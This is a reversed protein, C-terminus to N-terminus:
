WHCTKQAPSGADRATMCAGAHKETPNQAAARMRPTEPLEEAELEQPFSCPSLQGGADKQLSTAFPNQQRPPSRALKHSPTFIASEEPTSSRQAKRVAPIVLSNVALVGSGPPSEPQQHPSLALDPMRSSCQQSPSLEAIAGDAGSDHSDAPLVPRAACEPQAPQIPSGVKHPSDECESAADPKTPTFEFPSAQAPPQPTGKLPSRPLTRSAKFVYQEEVPAAETGITASRARGAAAKGGDQAHQEAGRETARMQASAPAAPPAAGAASLLQRDTLQLDQFARPLDTGQSSSRHRSRVRLKLKQLAPVQQTAPASEGRGTCAEQRAGLEGADSGGGRPKASYAAAPQMDRSSAIGPSGSETVARKNRRSSPSPNQSSVDPKGPSKTLGPRAASTVASSSSGFKAPMATQRRNTGIEGELLPKWSSQQVKSDGSSQQQDQPSGSDATDDTDSAACASAAAKSFSASPRGAHSVRPPRVPSSTACSM